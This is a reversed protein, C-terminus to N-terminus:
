LLDRRRAGSPGSAGSGHRGHCQRLIRLPGHLTWPRWDPEAFQQPKNAHNAFASVLM